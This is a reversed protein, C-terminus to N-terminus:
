PTHKSLRKCSTSGQRESSFRDSERRILGAQAVDFHRSPFRTSLHTPSPPQVMPLARIFSTMFPVGMGVGVQRQDHSMRSPEDRLTEGFKYLSLVEAKM